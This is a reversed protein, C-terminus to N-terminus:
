LFIYQYVNSIYDYLFIYQECVEFALRALTWFFGPRQKRIQRVVRKTEESINTDAIIRDEITNEPEVDNEKSSESLVKNLINMKKMIEEDKKRDNKDNQNLQSIRIDREEKFIKQNKVYQSSAHDYYSEKHEYNPLNSQHQKEENSFKSQIPQFEYRMPDSVEYPIWSSKAAETYLPIILFLLLWNAAFFNISLLYM